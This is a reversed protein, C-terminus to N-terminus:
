TSRTATATSAPRRRARRRRSSASRRTATTAPPPRTAPRRARAAPPQIAYADPTSGLVLNDLADIQAMIRLNDSIHIEPNLRLRMNASAQTKDHCASAATASRPAASLSTRAAHRRSDTYSNDLPQPWLNQPRRRPTARPPRALLQPVARRAHPLLRPARPRAAHPGVLRRQLRREASRGLRRSARPAADDQTAPQQPTTCRRPQISTPSAARPLGGAGAAGRARRAAPADDGRSAGQSRTVAPARRPAAASSARRHSSRARRATAM